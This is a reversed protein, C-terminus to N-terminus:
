HFDKGFSDRLSLALSRSYWRHLPKFARFLLGAEGGKIATATGFRATWEGGARREIALATLFRAPGFGSELVVETRGDGQEVAKVRFASLRAGVEAKLGEIERSSQFSGGPGLATLLRRECTFLAGSAFARLLADAPPPGPELHAFREPRSMLEKPLVILAQFSDMDVVDAESSAVRAFLSQAPPRVEVANGVRARTYEEKPVDDGNAFPPHTSTEYMEGAYMAGGIFMPMGLSIRTLTTLVPAVM